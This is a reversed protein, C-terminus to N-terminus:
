TKSSSQPKSQSAPRSPRLHKKRAHPHAQTGLKAALQLSEWQSRLALDSIEYLQWRTAQLRHMMVEAMRKVLEYGFEHNDECHERLRSGYIFVVKVPDIAHADFHWLYPPFLWSWGLVDGAGITQIHIPERGRSRSELAVSGELLLYFRNAVDGERFISEGGEFSTQMGCEAMARLHRPDLGHLFPSATLLDLIEPSSSESKMEM